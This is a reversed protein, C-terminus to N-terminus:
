VPPVSPPDQDHVSKSVAQVDRLPSVRHERWMWPTGLAAM